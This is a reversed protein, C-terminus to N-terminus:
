NEEEKKKKLINKKNSDWCPVEPVAGFNSIIKIGKKWKENKIKM